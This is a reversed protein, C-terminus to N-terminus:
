VADQERNVIRIMEEADEIRGSYMRIVDGDDHRLNINVVVEVRFDESLTREHM